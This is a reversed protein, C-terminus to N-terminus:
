ITPDPLEPASPDLERLAAAFFRSAAMYSNAAAPHDGAQHQEQARAYTGHALDLLQRYRESM